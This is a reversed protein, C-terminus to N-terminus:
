GVGRTRGDWRQTGVTGTGTGWRLDQIVTHIRCQRAAHPWLDYERWNALPPAVVHAGHLAERGTTPGWDCRGDVADAAEVAQSTLVASWMLSPFLEHPTADPPELQKQAPNHTYGGTHRRSIYGVSM